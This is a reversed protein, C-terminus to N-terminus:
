QRHQKLQVVPVPHPYLFPAFVALYGSFYLRKLALANAQSAYVVLYASKELSKIFKALLGLSNSLLMMDVLSILGRPGNRNIFRDILTKPWSVRV